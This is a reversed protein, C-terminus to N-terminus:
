ATAIAVAPKGSARAYGDAMFVAGQEHRTLVQRCGAAPLQHFLAQVHRGPIGFWCDFGREVLSEVMERALSRPTPSAPLVRSLRTKIKATEM